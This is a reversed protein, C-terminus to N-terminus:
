INRIAVALQELVHPSATKLDVVWEHGCRPCSITMVSQSSMILHSTPNHCRPCPSQIRNPM